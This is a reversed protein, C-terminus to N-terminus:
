QLSDKRSSSLRWRLTGVPRGYSQRKWRSSRLVLLEPFVRLERRLQQLDPEPLHVPFRMKRSSSNWFTISHDLLRASQWLSCLVLLISTFNLWEYRFLVILLGIELSGKFIIQNFSFILSKKPSIRWVSLPCFSLKISNFYVENIKVNILYLGKDTSSM